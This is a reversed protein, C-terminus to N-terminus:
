RFYVPVGIARVPAVYRVRGRPGIVINPSVITTTMPTLVPYGPAVVIPRAVHVRVPHTRRFYYRAAEATGSALAVVSLAVALTLLRIKM